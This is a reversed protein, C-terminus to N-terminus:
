WTTKNLNFIITQKRAFREYNYFIVMKISSKKKDFLSSQISINREVEFQNTELLVMKEKFLKIENKMIKVEGKKNDIKHIKLAQQVFRKTM